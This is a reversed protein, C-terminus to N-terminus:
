VSAKAQILKKYIAQGIGGTGGTLAYHKGELPHLDKIPHPPLISKLRLIQEALFLDLQTTIKINEESGMVISIPHNLRHVLSCDDSPAFSPDKLALKHAQLILPFSFSQPTQGRLYESRPPIADIMKQSQAHVITDASPICTDVAGIRVVEEINSKLIEESIFPRIADHIVVYETDTDCLLLALFSSEQRSKGGVIVKLRPDKCFSIEEEVRSKWGLPAVLLITHFDPMKLFPELTHLYVKKGAIRHFQKPISSGFRCGEGGMLLIACIKPKIPLNM